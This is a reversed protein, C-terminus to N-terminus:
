SVGASLTIVTQLEDGTGKFQSGLGVLDRPLGTFYAQAPDRGSRWVRRMVVSGYEGPAQLSHPWSDCSSPKRSSM